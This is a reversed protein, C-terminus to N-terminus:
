PSKILDPSYRVYIAFFYEDIDHFEIKLTTKGIRLENSDEIKSKQQFYM